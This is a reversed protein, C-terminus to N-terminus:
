MEVDLRRDRGGADLALTAIKQGHPSFHRIIKRRGAIAEVKGFTTGILQGIRLRNAEGLSEIDHISWERPFKIGRYKRRKMDILWITNRHIDISAFLGDKLETTNQLFESLLPSREIGPTGVLAIENMPRYNEDMFILKGRRTDSIFYGGRKRRSFKHPNILDSIVERAEGTTRDIVIGTGQHFLTVLIKGNGDYRASNIHAPCLRTPIGFKWKDPDNVFLVEHGMAALDRSKAEARVVYHGLQSRDFGHEWAFWHWVVKGTEVEFEFVADFGASAALLRKGDASFQV